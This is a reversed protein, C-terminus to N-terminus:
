GVNADRQLAGVRNRGQQRALEVSRDACKILADLSNIRDDRVAAGVSITIRLQPGGTEITMAEIATRLREGCKIAAGLDTDPCIVLFEDGGTRCIVDHARLVGRLANASQRLVMDGVDHGWADNIRKLGDLDIMM